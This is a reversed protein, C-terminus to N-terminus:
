LFLSRIRMRERVSKRPLRLQLPAFFISRQSTLTTSPRGRLSVRAQSPLPRRRSTMTSQVGVHSCLIFPRRPPHSLATTEQLVTSPLPVLTTRFWLARSRPTNSPAMPWRKHYRPPPSSSSCPEHAPRYPSIRLHTLFRVGESLTRPFSNLSSVSPPRTM